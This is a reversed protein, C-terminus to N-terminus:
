PGWLWDFKHPSTRYFSPTSVSRSDWGSSPIFWKNGLTRYKALFESHISGTKETVTFLLEFEGRSHTAAKADRDAVESDNLGEQSLCGCLVYLRVVKWYHLVYVLQSRIKIEPNKALIIFHEYHVFLTLPFPQRFLSCIRFIPIASMLECLFSTLVTPWFLLRDKGQIRIPIVVSLKWSTPLSQKRWVSNNVWKWLYVLSSVSNWRHYFTWQLTQRVRVFIVTLFNLNLKIRASTLVIILM